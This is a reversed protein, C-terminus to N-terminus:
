HEYQLWAASGDSALRGTVARIHDTLDRNRTGV